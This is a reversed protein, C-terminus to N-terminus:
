VKNVKTMNIVKLERDQIVKIDKIVKNVLYSDKIKEGPQGPYGKGGPYGLDGKIGVSNDGGDGMECQRGKDGPYGMEGKDGKAGPNGKM